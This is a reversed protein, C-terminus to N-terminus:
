KTDITRNEAATVKPKDTKGAETNIFRLIQTNRFGISNFVFLEARDNTMTIGSMYGNNDSQGIEIPTSFKSFLNERTAHYIKDGSLAFIELENQSLFCSMNNSIKPLTFDLKKPKSFKENQNKREAFYFTIESGKQKTFYVRLGDDSLWPYSDSIDPDNIEDLPRVNVFAGDEGARTSIYLDNNAQEDEKATIYLDNGKQTGDVSNVFIMTKEDGSVTPMIIDYEESNVTGKLRIPKGFADGPKERKMVYLQKEGKFNQSTFYMKLGDKSLQGVLPMVENGTNVTGAYRFNYGTIHTNKMDLKSLSSPSVSILAVALIGPITINRM